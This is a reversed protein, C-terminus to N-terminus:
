AKGEKRLLAYKLVAAVTKSDKIEGSMVMALVKDFPLTVVDLFEDPDLHQGTATLDRAM